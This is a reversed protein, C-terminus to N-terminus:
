GLVVSRVSGRLDGASTERFYTLIPSNYSRACCNEAHTHGGLIALLEGRPTANIEGWRGTSQIM